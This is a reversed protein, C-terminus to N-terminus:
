WQWDGEGRATRLRAKDRVTRCGRGDMDAHELVIRARDSDRDRTGAFLVSRGNRYWVGVMWCHLGAAWCTARRLM